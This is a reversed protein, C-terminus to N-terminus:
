KCAPAFYFVGATNELEDSLNALKKTRSRAEEM